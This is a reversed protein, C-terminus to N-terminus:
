TAELIEDYLSEVSEVMREIGFKDRIRRRAASVIEDRHAEDEIAFLIRDALSKSNAPLALYGTERDVILEKTGGVATAVVPVGASMAEMVANPLGEHLSALVLLDFGGLRGLSTRGDRLPRLFM